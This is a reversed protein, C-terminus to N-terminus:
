QKWNEPHSNEAYSWSSIGTNINDGLCTITGPESNIQLTSTPAFHYVEFDKLSCLHLAQTLM